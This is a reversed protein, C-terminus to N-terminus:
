DKQHRLVFKASRPPRQCRPCVHTGRGAVVMRRILGGCACPLGARGYIRLRGKFGGRSGETDVYNRFSTGGVAISEGLVARIAGCLARLRAAPLGSLERRPHLGCRHLAEDVYINGLGAVIAQNLLAHKLMGRRGRLAQFLGDIDTTWADPGLRLPRAAELVEVWGFRRMDRFRLEREEDFRLVLHTHSAVPADARVLLLQGTMGLHFRVTPRSGKEDSPRLLISKGHRDIKDVRAGALASRFGEVSGRVIGPFRLDLSLVRRGPLGRNLGRVITEVEPLEPM